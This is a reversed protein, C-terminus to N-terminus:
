VALRALLTEHLLKASFPKLLFRGPGLTELWARLADDGSGGSMIVTREALEPTIERLRELARRGNMRPMELDMLVLDFQEGSEVVAVAAAGDACEVVDFSRMLILMRRISNRLAGNDDVLLV